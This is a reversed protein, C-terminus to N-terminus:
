AGRRGNRKRKEDLSVISEVEDAPLEERLEAAKSMRPDDELAKLWAIVAIRLEEPLSRRHIFAAVELQEFVADDLRINAQRQAM